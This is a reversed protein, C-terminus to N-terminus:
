SRFLRKSLAAAVSLNRPGYMNSDVMMKLLEIRKKDCQASNETERPTPEDGVFRTELIKTCDMPNYEPLATSVPGLKKM